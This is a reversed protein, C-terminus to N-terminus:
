EYYGRKDVLTVKVATESSLNKFLIYKACTSADEGYLDLGFSAVKVRVASPIIAAKSVVQNVDTYTKTTDGVQVSFSSFNVPM